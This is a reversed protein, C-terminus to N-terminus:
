AMAERQSGSGFALYRSTSRLRDMIRGSYTDALKDKTLNTTVITPLMRNYRETVIADVKALVWSQDSNEGGLDDLVLLATKRIREEYRAMEDRNLTRMTMLNDILSVMPVLLGGHGGDLWQRLVAVAMTTKMTGYGGAMILGVGDRVNADLNRAYELVVAYNRRIDEREPLGRAEIAAFTVGQFRRLIGRKELEEASPSPKDGDAQTATGSRASENLSKEKLRAIIDRAQEM